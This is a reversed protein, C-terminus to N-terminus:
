CGIATALSRLASSQTLKHMLKSGTRCLLASPARPGYLCLSFCQKCKWTCQRRCLEAPMEVGLNLAPPLFSWPCCPLLLSVSGARQLKQAHKGQLDKQMMRSQFSVCESPLTLFCLLPIANKFIRWKLHVNEWCCWWSTSDWFPKTQRHQPISFAPLTQHPDKIGHKMGLLWLQSICSYCSYCNEM